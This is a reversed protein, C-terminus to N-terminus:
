PGQWLEEITHRAMTRHNTNCLEIAHRAIIRHDTAYKSPMVRWLRITQTMNGQNSAGFDSAENLYSIDPPWVLLIYSFINQEYLVVPKFLYELPFFGTEIVVKKHLADAWVIFICSPRLQYKSLSMANGWLVNKWCRWWKAHIKSKLTRFSM